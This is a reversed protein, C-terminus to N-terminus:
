RMRTPTPSMSTTPRGRLRKGRATALKAAEENRAIDDHDADADASAAKYGDGQGM